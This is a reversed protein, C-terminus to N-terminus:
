YKNMFIEQLESSYIYETFLSLQERIKSRLQKQKKTFGSFKKIKIFKALLKFDFPEIESVFLSNNVIQENYLKLQIIIEEINAPFTVMKLRELEIAYDQNAEFKFFLKSMNGLFLRYKNLSKTLLIKNLAYGKNELKDRDNEQEEYSSYLKLKKEGLEHENALFSLLPLDPEVSYKKQMVETVLSSNKLVPEEVLEISELIKRNPIFADFLEPKIRKVLMVGAFFLLICFIFNKLFKGKKKFQTKSEDSKIKKTM